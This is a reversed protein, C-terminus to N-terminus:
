RKNITLNSLRSYIQKKSLSWSNPFLNTTLNNTTSCTNLQKYLKNNSFSNNWRGQPFKNNECVFVFLADSRSSTITLEEWLAVSEIYYNYNNFNVATTDIFTNILSTGLLSVINTGVDERYINYYVATTFRTERPNAFRYISGNNLKWSIRIHNKNFVTFLLNDPKTLYISNVIISPLPTKEGSFLNSIRIADTGANNLSIDVVNIAQIPINNVDVNPTINMISVSTSNLESFTFTGVSINTPNQLINIVCIGNLRDNMNRGPPHDSLYIASYQSYPPVILTISSGTNGAGIIDENYLVYQSDLENNSTITSSTFFSLLHDTNTINSTDFIYRDGEYANISIDITGFRRIISGIQLDTIYTITYENDVVEVNFNYNQYSPPLQTNVGIFNASSLDEITGTAAAISVIPNFKITDATNIFCKTTNLFINAVQVVISPIQINKFLDIETDISFTILLENNLNSPNSTSKIIVIPNSIINNSVDPFLVTEQINFIGPNVNVINITLPALPLLGGFYETKVDPTIFFEIEREGGVSLVSTTLRTVKDIASIKFFSINFVYLDPDLGSPESSELYQTGATEIFKPVFTNFLTDDSSFRFSIKSNSVGDNPDIFLTHINTNNAPITRLNNEDVIATYNGVPTINLIDISHENPLLLQFRMTTEIEGTQFGTIFNNNYIYIMNRFEHVQNNAEQTDYLTAKNTLCKFGYLIYKHINSKIINIHFNGTTDISNLTININELQVGDAEGAGNFSTIEEQINKFLESVGRKKIKLIRFVSYLATDINIDSINTINDTYQAIVKGLNGANTNQYNDEFNFIIIKRNNWSPIDQIDFITKKVLVFSQINETFRIIKVNNFGAENGPTAKFELTKLNIGNFVVM